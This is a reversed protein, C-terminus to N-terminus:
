IRQLNQINRVDVYELELVRHQITSVTAMVVAKLVQVIFVSFLVAVVLSVAWESIIASNYQLSYTIALAISAMAVGMGIKWGILTFWWPCCGPDKQQSPRSTSLDHSTDGSKTRRMAMRFCFVVVSNVVAAILCGEIGYVIQRVHFQYSDPISTVSAYFIVTTVMFSSLLSFCVLAKQVRTLNVSIHFLSFWVHHQRFARSLNSKFRYSFPVRRMEQDSVNVQRDTKSSATVSSFWSDFIAFWSQDTQPDHLVIRDLFWAPSDGTETIWVRITRIDGFPAKTRLLYSDMDGRQHVKRSTDLSQPQIVFPISSRTGEIAVEVKSSTGAGTVRGTYVMMIYCYTADPDSQPIQIVSAKLYDKKDQGIAWWTVIGYLIILCASLIISTPNIAASPGSPAFVPPGSPMNVWTSSFSTLHDCQCHIVDSTSKNGLNCGSSDWDETAENWYQCGAESTSVEMIIEENESADVVHFGIYYTGKGTFATDPIVLTAGGTSNLEEARIVDTYLDEDLDNNSKKVVIEVGADISINSALNIIGSKSESTIEFQLYERGESSINTNVSSASPTTSRPIYIDIPTELDSVPIRTKEAQLELQSVQSDIQDGKWAYPNVEFGIMQIDVAEADGLSINSPLVFETNASGTSSNGSLSGGLLLDETYQKDIQMKMTDTEIVTPEEGPIQGASLAERVFQLSEMTAQTLEKAQAKEEKTLPPATTAKVAVEDDAEDDTEEPSEATNSALLNSLGSVLMTASKSIDESSTEDETSNSLFSSLEKMTNVADAKAEPPLESVEKTVETLASTTQKLSEMSKVSVSGLDEIFSKRMNMRELKRQKRKLKAEKTVTGNSSTSRDQAALNNIVASFTGLVQAVKQTDGMDKLNQLLGGEGSTMNKLTDEDIVVLPENVIVNLKVEVAAGISDSVRVLLDLTMNRNEDGVPLFTEPMFEDTGFSLLNEKTRGRKNTTVTFFEYTLPQDPDNFGSCTINFYTELVQGTEPAVTCEGVTPKSNTQLSYQSYGHAGSQFSATLKFMWNEQGSAGIAYPRLVLARKNKGTLTNQKWEFNTQLVDNLYAEWTYTVTMRWCNSCKAVLAVRQSSIVYQNCNRRCAVEINPPDGVAVEVIQDRSATRLDEFDPDDKDINVRFTYFQGATFNNTDLKVVSTHINLNGTSPSGTYCDTPFTPDSPWGNSKSCYWFYRLEQDYKSRVDPDRSSSADMKLTKGWGIVKANGGRIRAILPQEKVTIWAQTLSELNLGSDRDSPVIIKLLFLYKGSDLTYRRVQIDLEDYDTGRIRPLQNDISPMEDFEDEMKHITWEFRVKAVLDCNLRMRARLRIPSSKLYDITSDSTAGGGKMIVTPLKCPKKMVVVKSRTTQTSTLGVATVEVPFMGIKTYNHTFVTVLAHEPNFPLQIYDPIYQEIDAIKSPAELTVEENKGYNVTFTSNQGVRQAFLVFTVLENRVIPNNNILFVPGNSSVAEFHTANLVFDHLDTDLNLRCGLTYRGPGYNRLALQGHSPRRTISVNFSTIVDGFVSMVDYIDPNVDIDIDNEVGGRGNNSGYTESDYPRFLVEEVRLLTNEISERSITDNSKYLLCEGGTTKMGTLPRMNVHVNKEVAFINNEVANPSRFPREVALEVRHTIEIIIDALYYSSGDRQIECSVMYFGPRLTDISLVPVDTIADRIFTAVRCGSGKCRTSAMDHNGPTYVNVVMWKYNTYTNITDNTGTENLAVRVVFPSQTKFRASVGIYEARGNVYMPRPVRPPPGRTDNVIRVYDAVLYLGEIHQYVKVPLIKNFKSIANEVTVEATYEGPLYAHGLQGKNAYSFDATGNDSTGDGFDFKFHCESPPPDTPDLEYNFVVMDPYMVPTNAVPSIDISEAVIPHLSQLTGMEKVISGSPNGTVMQVNYQGAPLRMSAKTTGRRAGCKAVTVLVPVEPGGQRTFQDINSYHTENYNDSYYNTDNTHYNEYTNTGNTQYHGYSNTGNVNYDNNEGQSNHYGNQGAPSEMAENQDSGPPSFSTFSELRLLQIIKKATYSHLVKGNSESRFDKIVKSFDSALPPPRYENPIKSYDVYRSPYEREPYAVFTVQSAEGISTLDASFQYSQDVALNRENVMAEIREKSEIAQYQKVEVEEEFNSVEVKNPAGEDALLVVRLTHIGKVTPHIHFTHAMQDQTMYEWQQEGLNVRIHWSGPYPMTVTVNVPYQESIAVIKRGKSLICTSGNQKIAVLDMMFVPISLYFGYDKRYPNVKATFLATGSSATPDAVVTMRNITSARKVSITKKVENGALSTVVVWRGTELMVFLENAKSKSLQMGRSSQSSLAFEGGFLSCTDVSNSAARKNRPMSDIEVMNSFSVRMIAMETPEQSMTMVVTLKQVGGSFKELKSAPIEFFSDPAQCSTGHGGVNHLNPMNLFEFPGINYRGVTVSVNWVGYIPLQVAFTWPGQKSLTMSAKKSGSCEGEQIGISFRAFPPIDSKPDMNNCDTDPTENKIGDGGHGGTVSLDEVKVKSFIVFTENTELSFVSATIDYQGPPMTPSTTFELSLPGGNSFPVVRKSFNRGQIELYVDWSKDAPLSYVMHNKNTQSIVIEDPIQSTLGFTAEFDKCQHHGLEQPHDMVVFPRSWETAINTEIHILKIKGMRLGEDLYVDSPLNIHVPYSLCTGLQDEARIMNAEITTNQITTDDVQVIAIWRGEFLPTVSIDLSENRLIFVTDEKDCMTGGLHVSVRNLRVTSGAQPDYCGQNENYNGPEFEGLFLMTVLRFEEQSQQGHPTITVEFMYTGEDRDPPITVNGSDSAAEKEYIIDGLKLSIDRQKTPQFRYKFYLNADAPLSMQNPNSSSLGIENRYLQQRDADGRPTDQVSIITKYSISFGGEAATMNITLLKDGTSVMGNWKDNPIEIVAPAVTCNVMHTEAESEYFFDDIKVQVTWLAPIFRAEITIDQDLAIVTKEGDSMGERISFDVTYLDNSYDMNCHPGQDYYHQQDLDELHIMSTVEYVIGRASDSARLVLPYLGPYRDPQPNMYVTRMDDMGNTEGFAYYPAGGIELLVAWNQGRPLSYLAFSDKSHPLVMEAPTQSTLGFNGEFMPVNCNPSGATNTAKFKGKFSFRLDDEMLFTFNMRIEYIESDVLDFYSVDPITISVPSHGCLFSGDDAPMMVYNFYLGSAVTGLSLIELTGEWEGPAIPVIKIDWSGSTPVTRVDGDCKSQEIHMSVYNIKNVSDAYPDHCGMNDSPHQPQYEYPNVGAYVNGTLSFSKYHTGEAVTAIGMPIMGAYGIPPILLSNIIASNDVNLDRKVSHHAATVEFSWRGIPLSCSVETNDNESFAPLNPMDAAQFGLKAEYLPPCNESNTAGDQIIVDQMFFLHPSDHAKYDVMDISLRTEGLPVDALENSSIATNGQIQCFESSQRDLNLTMNIQKALHVDNGFSVQVDWTGEIFSTRLKLDGKGIIPLDPNTCDHNVDFLVGFPVKVVTTPNFMRMSCEMRAEDDDSMQHEEMQRSRRVMLLAVLLVGLYANM